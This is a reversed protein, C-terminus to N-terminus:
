NLADCPWRYANENRPFAIQCPLVAQQSLVDRWSSTSISYAAVVVKQLTVLM